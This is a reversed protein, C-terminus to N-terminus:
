SIKIIGQQILFQLAKILDDDSLNGQAYYGFVSKVWNPIKHVTPLITGTGNNQTGNPALHTPPNVPTVVPNEIDIIKSAEVGPFYSAYIEYKGSSSWSDGAVRFRQEFNGTDSITVTSNAVLKQAQYYVSVTLLTVGSKVPTVTGSVTIMDNQHYLAADTNVKLTYSAPNDSPNGLFWGTTNHSAPPTPNMEQAFSPCLYISFLSLSIAVMSTGIIAHKANM